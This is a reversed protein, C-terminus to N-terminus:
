HEVNKALQKPKAKNQAPSDGNKGAGSLILTKRQVKYGRGDLKKPAPRLHQKAPSKKGM